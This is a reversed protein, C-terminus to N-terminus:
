RNIRQKSGVEQPNPPKAHKRKISNLLWRIAQQVLTQTLVQNPTLPKACAYICLETKNQSVFHSVEYTCMNSAQKNSCGARQLHQVINRQICCQVFTQAFVKLTVIKPTDSSTWPEHFLHDSEPLGSICAYHFLDMINIPACNLVMYQYQKSKKLFIM